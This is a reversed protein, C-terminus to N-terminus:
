KWTVTIAVSVRAAVAQPEFIVSQDGTEFRPRVLADLAEVELTPALWRTAQWWTGLGGGAAVYSSAATRGGVAHDAAASKGAEGVVWAAIPWRQGRWGSRLAITWLGVDIDGTEGPMALSANSWQVYGLEAFVHARGVTVAVESGLRTSPLAGVEALMALRAAVLWRSHSATAAGIAAPRPTTLEPLTPAPPVPEERKPEAGTRARAMILAIADVLEDCSHGELTRVEHDPLVLTAILEHGVESRAVALSAAEHLGLARGLRHEVQARLSTADTCDSAVDPPDAHATALTLEVLMAIMCAIRVWM